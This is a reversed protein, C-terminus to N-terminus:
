KSFLEKAKELAKSIGSINSGGATAYNSQGGGSGSIEKAIDNIYITADLGEKVLDDSIIISIFAKDDSQAALVAIVRDQKRFYFSMEKM